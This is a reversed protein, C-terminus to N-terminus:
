VGTRVEPIMPTMAVDADVAGRVSMEASVWAPPLWSCYRSYRSGAYRSSNSAQRPRYLFGHFSRRSVSRRMRLQSSSRRSASWSESPTTPSTMKGLVTGGHLTVPIDLDQCAAWLPDYYPDYLPKVWKVDPPVPPLLVGGRLGNEKIWTADAIADDIDNLFIQGVGARQTPRRACFDILWRNHAKIGARRRISERSWMGSM